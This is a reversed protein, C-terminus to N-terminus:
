FNSSDRQPCDGPCREVAEPAVMLARLSNDPVCLEVLDVFLTVALADNVGYDSQQPLETAIVVFRQQSYSFVFESFDCIMKRVNLLFFSVSLFMLSVNGATCCGRAPM